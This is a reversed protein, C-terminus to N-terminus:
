FVSERRVAGLVEGRLRQEIFDRARDARHTHQWAFLKVFTPLDRLSDRAPEPVFPTLMRASSRDPTDDLEAGTVAKGRENKQQTVRGQM